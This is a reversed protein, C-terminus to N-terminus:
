NFLSWLDGNSLMVKAKGVYKAEVGFATLKAKGEKTKGGENYFYKTIAPTPAELEHTAESTYANGSNIAVVSGKIDVKTLIPCSTGSFELETFTEGSAPTFVTVGGSSSEKEAEKEGKFANKSALANTDITGWNSTGKTAVKCTGKGYTCGTYVITEHDLGWGPSLDNEITAGAVLSTGTCSITEAAASELLQNGNAEALIETTGMFQSGAILFVPNNTSTAFASGALAMSLACVAGILMGLLKISRM